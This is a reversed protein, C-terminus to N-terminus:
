YFLSFGFDIEYRKDNVRSDPRFDYAFGLKIPLAKTAELFAILEGGATIGWDWEYDEDGPAYAVIADAVPSFHLEAKGARVLLTQVSANAYAAANGKIGANRIGRANRGEKLDPDGTNADLGLRFSPNFRTGFLMFHAYDAAVYLTEKNKAYTPDELALRARVSAKDGKRFNGRWNFADLTLANEIEFYRDIPGYSLYDSDDVSIVKGSPSGGARVKVANKLGGDFILAVSAGLQGKLDNFEIKEIGRDEIKENMRMANGNVGLEFRGLRIGTIAAIIAYDPDTWQLAETDSPPAAYIGVLTLNSLTGALNPANAIAGAMFGDNSNYFAYPIPVFAAGDEIRTRLTVPVYGDADIEGNADIEALVASKKFSRLNELAQERATVFADLADRSAFRTGIASGVRVRVSEEKTRGSIEYTEGVVLYGTDKAANEALVPRPILALVFITSAILPRINM